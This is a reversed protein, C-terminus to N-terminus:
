PSEEQGYTTRPKAAMTTHIEPGRPPLSPCRRGTRAARVPSGHSVRGRDCCSANACHRLELRHHPPRDFLDAHHRHRKPYVSDDTVPDSVDNDAIVPLDPHTARKRLIDSWLPEVDLNADIPPHNLDIATSSAPETPACPKYRAVALVALDQSSDTHRGGAILVRRGSTTRLIPSAAKQPGTSFGGSLTIAVGKFPFDWLLLRGVGGQRPWQFLGSETIRRIYGVMLPHFKIGGECLAM